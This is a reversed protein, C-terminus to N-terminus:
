VIHWEYDWTKDELEKVVGVVGVEDDEEDHSETNSTLLFESFGSCSLLPLVLLPSRLFGNHLDGAVSFM